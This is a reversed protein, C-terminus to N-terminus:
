QAGASVDLAMAMQAIRRVNAYRDVIMLANADVHAALHGQQPLLPRLIPVLQTAAAHELRVVRTVWEEADIAADDEFLLPLPYQRIRAVPVITTTDAGSVAALANNRLVKLFVPYTIDRIRPQGVVVTAPVQADVLFTKGSKNGVAELLDELKVTPFAAPPASKLSLSSDSDAAFGATGLFLVLVSLVAAFGTRKM